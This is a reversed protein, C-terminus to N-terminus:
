DESTAGLHGVILPKFATISAIASGKGWLGQGLGDRDPQSPWELVCCREKLYNLILRVKGRM